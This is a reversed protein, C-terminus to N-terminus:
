YDHRYRLAIVVPAYVQGLYYPPCEKEEDRGGRRERGEREGGREEGGKGEGERGM